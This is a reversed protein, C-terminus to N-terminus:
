DKTIYSTNMNLLEPKPLLYRYGMQPILPNKENKTSKVYTVATSLIRKRKAKARQILVHFVSPLNSEFRTYTYLSSSDLFAQM